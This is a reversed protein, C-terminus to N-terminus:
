YPLLVTLVGHSGGQATLSRRWSCANSRARASGRKSSWACVRARGSGAVPLKPTDTRHVTSDENGHLGPADVFPIPITYRHLWPASLIPMSRNTAALEVSRQNAIALQKDLMDAREQAQEALLRSQRLAEM